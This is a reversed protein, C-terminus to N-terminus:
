VLAPGEPTPNKSNYDWLKRLHPDLPQYGLATYMKFGIFLGGTERTALEKFPFDWPGYLWNTKELKTGKEGRWRRPEYHYLPILQFPHSKVAELTDKYQKKWNCFTKLNEEPLRTKEGASEIAAGKERKYFYWPFEDDHYITQGDYGAIHAYDMDMPMVIMPTMLESNMYYESKRVPGGIAYASNNEEVAITGIEVTSRIQLYGASGIVFSAVWGKIGETASQNIQERTKGRMFRSKDWLLPLPTCAGNEIHM